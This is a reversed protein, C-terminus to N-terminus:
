PRVRDGPCTRSRSSVAKGIAEDAYEKDRREGPQGHKAEIEQQMGADEGPEVSLRTGEQKGRLAGEREDGESVRRKDEQGDGQDPQRRM